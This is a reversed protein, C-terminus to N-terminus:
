NQRNSIKWIESNKYIVKRKLESWSHNSTFYKKNRVSKRRMSKIVKWTLQESRKFEGGITSCWDTPKNPWPNISLWIHTTLRHKNTISHSIKLGGPIGKGNARHTALLLHPPSTGLFFCGGRAIPWAKGCVPTPTGKWSRHEKSVRNAWRFAMHRAVTPGWRKKEILPDNSLLLVSEKWRLLPSLALKDNVKHWVRRHFSRNEM